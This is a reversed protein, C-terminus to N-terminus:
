ALMASSTSLCVPLIQRGSSLLMMTSAASGSSCARRAVPGNFPRGIRILSLMSVASMGVVAPESASTSLAGPRSAGSTTRSLPAPATIRPLVLRDSHALMREVLEVLPQLATPPSVRLGCASSRLAQPEDEPLPAATAAPSAGAAIPVSVSPEIVQGAAILPMTPKLGVTPSTDRVCMTGILWECSVAPGIVRVTSSAAMTSDAM